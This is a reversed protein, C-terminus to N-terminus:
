QTGAPTAFTIPTIPRPMFKFKLDTFAPWKLNTAAAMLVHHKNYNRVVAAVATTCRLWQLETQRDTRGDM